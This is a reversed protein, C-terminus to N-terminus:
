KLEEFKKDITGIREDLKGIGEDFKKKLVDMRGSAEEKYEAFEVDLEAVKKNTMGAEEGGKKSIFLLEVKTILIKSEDAENGRILFSISQLLQRPSIYVINQIIPTARQPYVSPKNDSVDSKTSSFTNQAPSTERFLDMDDLLETSKMAQCLKEQIQLFP